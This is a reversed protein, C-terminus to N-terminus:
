KIRLRIKERQQEATNYHKIGIGISEQTLKSPVVQDNDKSEAVVGAKSSFLKQKISPHGEFLNHKNFQNLGYNINLTCHQLMQELKSTSSPEDSKM